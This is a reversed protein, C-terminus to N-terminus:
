SVWENPDAAEELAVRMGRAAVGGFREVLRDPDVPEDDISMSEIQVREAEFWQPSGSVGYDCRAMRATLVAHLDMGNVEAIVCQYAEGM